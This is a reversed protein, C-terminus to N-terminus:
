ECSTELSFAAQEGAPGGVMVLWETEEDVRGFLTLEGGDRSDDM